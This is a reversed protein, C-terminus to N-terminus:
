SVYLLTQDAENIFGFVKAKEKKLQDLVVGWESVGCM